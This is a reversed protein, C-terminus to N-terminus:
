QIRARLVKYDTKGTGLTPIAPVLQVDDLRMVGRHGESQLLANADRLTIPETTFLVIRRGTPTEVGEVAVRPGADTPPFKRAFPEELAPLSIMEGGAKLFRKLRGHFVIAGAEDIAALDGTIYWNKGDIDEFPAPGDHGIYGPFVTPGAIHLMGMQGQPLVAKTALDTVCVEVGPLPQGITGPRTRGPRNVSVVPACETIGYGELVEANPALQKAKDFLSQSAKEAGVIILKLSDLDGPKARELIYSVFTPTGAVLTPKYAAIKRALAASDTPDPHHVVRVGVFLPLLGTVTLGFSHFMPLFGLAANDGGIQLAEIAGRQDSIINAHTLPVAKPAKESGSTFLIVAPKHPDRPVRKLLSAKTAGAFYRVAILRRLLTFKTLSARVDELFLYQVGAVQVQTRDIFARSTVVHTLEMLKAAHALNAPGTTWNLVVPLKGALHLGLFALDCAVSAPLMLGVNPAAIDRFKGSMAWAGVIMKEYTVGGALDDAAIVQKRRAFAQNLFAESITEGLIALPTNDTPADFWGAPPPKPPANQTLGEAIAWLGGLTTPVIDSSFGFRQEVALSVDMADLSDMGLQLFTADANAEDPALPRKLKDEVFQAVIAKTEPKVKTYDYEHTEVVPPPYKHTRPGFLFHRPVYHPEERPTDANYWAELWRNLVERKPAPRAETTFAELTVTVKRRPAFIFLNEGWLSWGRILGGGISPQGDAWSFMSGWLGRTRALVVTANPVAALVDAATRAGGLKESGDRSLRGSPWLIVNEGARLAAIVEGVAAEARQKDHVSAKVIDPMKIARLMWAFPGLIPNKFNTELLLPRMKFIPWLRVLLNPPDTFAPHNPLILYPGPKKLVAETGQITLKYRQALLVRLLAWAAWRIAGLM